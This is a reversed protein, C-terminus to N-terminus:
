VRIYREGKTIKAIHLAEEVQQQFFPFDMIGEIAAAGVSCIPVIGAVVNKDQEMESAIMRMLEDLEDVKMNKFYMLVKGDGISGFMGKGGLCQGVVSNLKHMASDGWAVGNQEIIRKFHNISVVAMAHSDDFGGDEVEARAREQIGNAHQMAFEMASHEKQRKLVEDHVNRIRGVVRSINGENDEISFYYIRHWEYGRGSIKSLYELQGESQKNMAIFLHRRFIDLSDPHVLASDELSKVYHPVRRRILSGDMEKYSYTMVDEAINVEFLIEHSTEELLRYREEQIQLENEIKKQRTVDLIMTCFIKRKRTSSITYGRIWVWGKKKPSSYYTLICDLMTDHEIAEEIKEQLLTYSQKTLLEEMPNTLKNLYEEEYGYCLQAVGESLYLPRVKDTVEYIGLGGPLLRGFADMFVSCAELSKKLGRQTKQM